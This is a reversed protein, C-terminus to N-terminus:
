NVPFGVKSPLYEEFFKEAGFFEDGIHEIFFLHFDEDFGTKQEERLREGSEGCRKFFNLDYWACIGDDFRFGKDHSYLRLGEEDGSKEYKLSVKGLGLYIAIQYKQFLESGFQKIFVSPMESNYDVSFVYLPEKRLVEEGDKWLKIFLPTLSDSVNIIHGLFGLKGKELYFKTKEEIQYFLYTLTVIWYKQKKTYM